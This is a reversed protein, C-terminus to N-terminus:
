RRESSLKVTDARTYEIPVPHYVKKNSIRRLLIIIGQYNRKQPNHAAKLTLTLGVFINFIIYALRLAFSDYVLGNSIIKYIRFPSNLENLMLYKM